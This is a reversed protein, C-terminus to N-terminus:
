KRKRKKLRSLKERAEESKLKSMPLINKVTVIILLCTGVAAVFIIWVWPGNVYIWDIVTNIPVNVTQISSVDVQYLAGEVEAFVVAQLDFKRSKNIKEQDASRLECIINFPEEAGPNVNQSLRGIEKKYEGFGEVLPIGLSTKEVIYVVVTASCNYRGKNTVKVMVQDNKYVGLQGGLQNVINEDTDWEDPPNFESIYIKNIELLKSIVRISEIGYTDKKFLFGFSKGYLVIQLGYSEKYWDAEVNSISCIVQIEEHEKKGIPLNINTNEGIKENILGAYTLYVQIEGQFPLWRQKTIEVKLIFSDEVTIIENDLTVNLIRVKPKIISATTIAPFLLIILILTILFYTKKM